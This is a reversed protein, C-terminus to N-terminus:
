RVCIKEDMWQAIARLSPEHQLPLQHAAPTLLQQGASCAALLEDIRRRMRLSEQEGVVHLSPMTVPVRLRSQWPECKPLGGAGLVMWQFPLPQQRAQYDALLMLSMVAGQSWGFVGDFPGQEDILQSLYQLTPEVEQYSGDDGYQFWCYHRGARWRFLPAQVQLRQWLARVQTENCEHPGQAFVMQVPQRMHAEIPRLWQEFWSANMSFGHLCLLKKM